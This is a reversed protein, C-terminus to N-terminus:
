NNNDGNETANANDDVASDSQAQKSVESHFYSSFSSIEKGNELRFSKTCDVLNGENKKQKFWETITANEEKDDNEWLGKLTNFDPYVWVTEGKNEYVFGESPIKGSLFEYCVLSKPKQEKDRLDALDASRAVKFTETAFKNLIGINQTSKQNLFKYLDMFKCDFSSIVRQIDICDAEHLLIAVKSKGSEVPPADKSNIAKVVIDIEEESLLNGLQKKARRASTEDFVDVWHNKRGSDHYMAAYEALKVDQNNFQLGNFMKYNENVFKAIKKIYDIVHKAHNVGHAGEGFREASDISNASESNDSERFTQQDKFGSKDKYIYMKEMAKFCDEAVKYKQLSDENVLQQIAIIRQKDGENLTQPRTPPEGKTLIYIIYDINIRVKELDRGRAGELMALLKESVTMPKLGLLEKTKESKEGYTNIIWQRVGGTPEDWIRKENNYMLTMYPKDYKNYNKDILAQQVTKSMEESEQDQLQQVDISSKESEQVQLQKATKSFLSKIKKYVKKPYNVIKRLKRVARRPMSASIDERIEKVIDWWAEKTTAKEILKKVNNIDGCKADEIKTILNSEISKDFKVKTENRFGKRFAFNILIFVIGVTEINENFKLLKGEVFEIIEKQVDNIHKGDMLNTIRILEDAITRDSNKEKFEQTNVYKKLKKLSVVIERPKNNNKGM